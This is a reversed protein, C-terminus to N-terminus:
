KNLILQKDFVVHPPPSLLFLSANLEQLKYFTNKDIVFFFFLIVREEELSAFVLTFLEITRTYCVEDDVKRNRRGCKVCHIRLYLSYLNKVLIPLTSVLKNLSTAIVILRLLSVSLDFHNVEWCLTVVFWFCGNHLFAFYFTTSSIQTKNSPFFFWHQFM